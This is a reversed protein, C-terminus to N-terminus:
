LGDAADNFRQAALDSGLQAKARMNHFDQIKLAGLPMRKFAPETRFVVKLRLQRTTQDFARHTRVFGHDLHWTRGPKVKTPM